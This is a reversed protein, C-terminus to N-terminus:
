TLALETTQYIVKYQMSIVGLQKDADVFQWDTGVPVFDVVLGQLTADNALKSHVDVTIPDAATDPGDARVLVMVHFTLEWTLRGVAERTCSESLPEINLCPHESRHFAVARSRFINTSVQTTGALASVAAALITERKSM